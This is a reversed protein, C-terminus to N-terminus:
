FRILVIIMWVKCILFDLSLNLLKAPSVATLSPALPGVWALGLAEGRGPQAVRSGGM